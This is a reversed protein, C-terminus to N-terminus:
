PLRIAHLLLKLRDRLTRPTERRLRQQHAAERRRVGLEVPDLSGFRPQPPPTLEWNTCHRTQHRGLWSTTKLSTHRLSPM